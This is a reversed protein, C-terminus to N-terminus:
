DFKLKLISVDDAFAEKISVDQIEVLIQELQVPSKLQYQTLLGIFNELGWVMGDSQELEYIGDSFIYLNSDPDVSCQSNTYTAFEFMGIPVGGATRLLQVKLSDPSDGSLLVAPPHGATAYILQRSMRNYVGYWITFYMNRQKEMQFYNNLAELVEKPQYFDTQLSSRSRLLNLVSISLLAPGVGHGSADLLYIALNDQDLWFYDFCDGGLQQSPIFRAEIQLPHSVPSPLLSRVYDAAESLEAQLAAEAQKRETIDIGVFVAAEDELWKKAIVLDSRPAGDVVTDIEISAERLSSSFFQRVFEGFQSQRFGVEQGVFSEQPLNYTAALHRNVGLYRFNSSILSVTGPVADLVAQLLDRAMRLAAESQKRNTADEVFGEIAVPRGQPDQVLRITESVWIVSGDRRYVEAEVQQLQGHAELRRRCETWHNPNVYLKAANDVNELFEEPSDYGYIAALAANATRYYGDLTTQFLGQTTNEFIQRYKRATINRFIWRTVSPVGGEWRYSVNGEAWIPDGSKTLFIIEISELSEGQRLKELLWPQRCEPHLVDWLTLNAVDLESYGLTQRWTQNVYIFHQDSLRVNQILVNARDLFNHLHTQTTEMYRLQRRSDLLVMVQRALSELLQQQQVSFERPVYDMVCLTGLSLGEATKLPAGAYFRVHPFSVVRPNTAFRWDKLTDTVVFVQEHLIAHACFAIDRKWTRGKWGVKSKFWQRHSDILSILAIPMGFLNAALQALDDFAPEPPTDLIQYRRLAEIRQVENPPLPAKMIAIRGTALNHAM